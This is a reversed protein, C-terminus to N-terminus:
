PATRRDEATVSPNLCLTGCSPVAGLDVEILHPRRVFPTAHQASKNYGPDNVGAMASQGEGM